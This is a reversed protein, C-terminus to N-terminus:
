SAKNRHEARKRQVGAIKDEAGRSYRMTMAIDSHTAAHRVHELDAGADTAESIAGARSDMSRVSDPIGAARALKRWWRRYEGAIWPLESAESWIVPGTAPFKDRQLGGIANQGMAYHLEEVVMPALKLDITIEKQRKSTIHVLVFDADIEEWRIGRLWKQGYARVESQGPETEPVWEGIIDKQRLMGEFQIAQALAISPRGAKHAERRILNAQEATLRETRSKAMAFKMLHLMGALRECEKDELITAGFGVLTRIMGVLGHGMAVHGRAVIDEHWRKLQRARIDALPLTGFDAAIRKCLVDYHQRTPWRKSHYPSDRDTRYEDILWQVTGKPAPAAPIEMQAEFPTSKGCGQDLGNDPNSQGVVVEGVMANKDM